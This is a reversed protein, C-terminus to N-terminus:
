SNVSGGPRTGAEDPAGPPLPCTCSTRTPSSTSPWSADRAGFHVRRSRIAQGRAGRRVRRHRQRARPPRPARLEARALPDPAAVAHAGTIPPRAGLGLAPTSASSSTPISCRSCRTSTAPAHPRWSRTSSRASVRWTPMPARRPAACAAGRAARSSARRTRRGARRDRRDRRVARRVHRAPRVRAARGADADRARRAARARGLRRAAGRARSRTEDDLSVIPEPLWSGVYEERRARRARLMDLCVRGVVTTLWGGLNAVRRRTPAASGCGPRRCPTTPRARALRADPLRRARLHPRHEEFQEALWERDDM